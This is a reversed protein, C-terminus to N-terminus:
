VDIDSSSSLERVTRQTVTEPSYVVTSTRAAWDAARFDKRRRAADVAGLPTPIQGRFWGSRREAWRIFQVLAARRLAILQVRVNSGGLAAEFHDYGESEVHLKLLKSIDSRSELQFIGHENSKVTELPSRGTPKVVLLTILAQAIGAGTHAAVVSGSIPGPTARRVELEPRGSIEPGPPAATKTRGLWAYVLWALFGAMAAVKAALQPLHAGAKPIFVNAPEDAQLGDTTSRFRLVVEIDDPSRALELEARGDTLPASALFAGKTSAEILGNM